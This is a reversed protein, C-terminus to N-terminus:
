ISTLVKILGTKQLAIVMAAESVEFAGALLKPARLSPERVARQLLASPMLLAGAFTNAEQEHHQAYLSAETAPPEDITPPAEMMMAHALFHHGLEHAMTFRQRVRADQSRIGVARGQLLGSLTPPWTTVYQISLGATVAIAFPDVPWSAIGHQKLIKEALKTAFPHRAKEM